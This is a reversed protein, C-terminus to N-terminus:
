GGEGGVQRDSLPVQAGGGSLQAMWWDHLLQAVEKLPLFLSPLKASSMRLAMLAEDM